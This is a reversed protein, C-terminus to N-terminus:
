RLGAKERVEAITQRAVTRASEAGKEMLRRVSEADSALESYKRRIPELERAMNDSLRKKCEICGISATRCGDASWEVDSRFLV